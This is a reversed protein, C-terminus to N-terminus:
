NMHRIPWQLEHNEFIKQDNAAKRAFHHRRSTQHIHSFGDNLDDTQMSGIGYRFISKSRAMGPEGLMYPNCKNGVVNIHLNLIKKEVTSSSVVNYAKDVPEKLAHTLANFGLDLYEIVMNNNMLLVLDPAIDDSINNSALDLAKVHSGLVSPEKGSADSIVRMISGAGKTGLKCNNLHIDELHATELWSVIPEMDTGLSNGSLKMRKVTKRTCVSKLLEKSGFPNLGMHSFDVYELPPGKHGLGEAEMRANREEDAQIEKKSDGSEIRRERTRVISDAKEEPTLVKIAYALDAAAEDGIENSSIIFRKLTKTLVMYQCLITIHSHTLGCKTVDLTMLPLEWNELLRFMYGSTKVSLHNDALSLNQLTKNYSRISNLIYKLENPKLGVNNDAVFNILIDNYRFTDLLIAMTVKSACTCSIDLSTISRNYRMDKVMKESSVPAEQANAATSANSPADESAFEDVPPTMSGIVIACGADTLDNYSVNLNILSGIQRILEAISKSGTLGIKNDSIDLDILEESALLSAAVMSSVQSSLMSSENGMLQGRQGATRGPAAEPAGPSGGPSSAPRKNNTASSSSSSGSGSGSSSSKHQTATDTSLSTSDIVDSHKEEVVSELQMREKLQQELLYEPNACLAKQIAAIGSDGCRTSGMCITRLQKSVCTTHLADFLDCITVDGLPRGYLNLDLLGTWGSQLSHGFYLKPLYVNVDGLRTIKTAESESPVMDLYMALKKSEVADDNNNNAGGGDDEKFLDFNDFMLENQTTHTHNHKALNLCDLCLMEGKTYKRGYAELVNKYYRSILMGPRSIELLSMCRDVSMGYHRIMYAAAVFCPRDLGKRSWLLVRPTRKEKGIRIKIAVDETTKFPRGFKDTKEVIRSAMQLPDSLLAKEPNLRELEIWDYCKELQDIIKTMVEDTAVGKPKDVLPITRCRFYPLKEIPNGMNNTCNIVLTIGQDLIPNLKSAGTNGCYLLGPVVESAMKGDPYSLSKRLGIMDISNEGVGRMHGVALAGCRSCHRHIPLSDFAEANMADLKDPLAAIPNFVEASASIDDGQKPPMMPKPLLRPRLESMFLLQEWDKQGETWLMTNDTLEQQRYMLKLESETYPGDIGKTERPSLIRFWRSKEREDVPLSFGTHLGRPPIVPATSKSAASFDGDDLGDDDSNSDSVDGASMFSEDKTNGLTASTLSAEKMEQQQHGGHWTGAKAGQNAIDLVSKEFTNGTQTVSDLHTHTQKIETFAVAEDAAVLLEHFSAKDM